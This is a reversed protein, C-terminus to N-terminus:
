SSMRRAESGLRMRGNRMLMDQPKQWMAKGGFWVGTGGTRMVNAQPKEWTGKWWCVGGAAGSRGSHAFTELVMPLWNQRALVDEAWRVRAFWASKWNRLLWCGPVMSVESTDVSCILLEFVMVLMQSTGARNFRAVCFGGSCCLSQFRRMGLTWPAVLSLGRM